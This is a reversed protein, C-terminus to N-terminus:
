CSCDNRADYYRVPNSGCGFLTTLESKTIMETDKVKRLGNCSGGSGLNVVNLQSKCCVTSIIYKCGDNWFRDGVSYTAEEEALIAELNALKVKMADVEKQAEQKKDMKPEKIFVTDNLEHWEELRGDVERFGCRGTKTKATVEFRGCKFWNFEDGIKLEGFTTKITKDSM